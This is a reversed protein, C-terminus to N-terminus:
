TVEWGDRGSDAEALSWKADESQWRALSEMLAQPSDGM